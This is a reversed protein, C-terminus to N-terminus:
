NKETHTNQEYAAIEDKTYKKCPGSLWVKTKRRRSALRKKNKSDVRKEERTKKNGNKNKLSVSDHFMKHCRRCLVTLFSLPEEGFVEPYQRHHVHLDDVDNCVQCKGGSLEIAEARLEAWRSSKLYDYYLEKRTM